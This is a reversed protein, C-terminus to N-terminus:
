LYDTFYAILALSLSVAGIIASIWRPDKYWPEPEINVIIQPQQDPEQTEKPKVTIESTGPAKEPGQEVGKSSEAPKTEAPKEAQVDPEGKAERAEQAAKARAKEAKVQAKLRKKEIKALEKKEKDDGMVKQIPIRNIFV